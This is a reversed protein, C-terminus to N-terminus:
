HEARADVVPLSPVGVADERRQLATYILGEPSQRNYVNQVDFYANIVSRRPM